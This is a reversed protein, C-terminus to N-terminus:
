VWSYTALDKAFQNQFKRIHKKKKKSAWFEEGCLIHSLSLLSNARNWVRRIWKRPSYSLSAVPNMGRESSILKKAITIHSLLWLSLLLITCPAPLFSGMPLHVPLRLIIGVAAKFVIRGILRDSPSIIYRTNVSSTLLKKPFHQHYYLSTALKKKKQLLSGSKKRKGWPKRGRGPPETTLTDPEHGPPQSNSGRNLRSKKGAFKRREGRCFCTLLTTSPKPFFTSNTSTLSDPFVYADGVAM